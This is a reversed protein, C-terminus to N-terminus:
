EALGQQQGLYARNVFPMEDHANGAAGMFSYFWCYLQLRYSTATHPFMFRLSAARQRASNPLKVRSSM